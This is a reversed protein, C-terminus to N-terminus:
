HKVFTIFLRKCNAVLEIEVLIEHVFISNKGSEQIMSRAATNGTASEVVFLRKSTWVKCYNLSADNRKTKM